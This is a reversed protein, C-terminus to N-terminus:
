HASECASNGLQLTGKVVYDTQCTSLLLSHSMFDPMRINIKHKGEEYKNGKKQLADEGYAMISSSGLEGEPWSEHHSQLFASSSSYLLARDPEENMIYLM